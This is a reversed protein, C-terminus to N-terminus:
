QAQRDEGEEQAGSFSVQGGPLWREEGPAWRAVSGAGATAEEGRGGPHSQSGREAERRDELRKRPRGRWDGGGLIFDRNGLAGDWARGM